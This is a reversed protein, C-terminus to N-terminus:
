RRLNCCYYCLAIRAYNNFIETLIECSKHGQNEMAEQRKKCANRLKLAPTENFGEQM